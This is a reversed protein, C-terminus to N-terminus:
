TNTYINKYYCLIQFLIHLFANLKYLNNMLKIKLHSKREEILWLHLFSFSFFMHLKFNKEQNKKKVQQYRDTHM